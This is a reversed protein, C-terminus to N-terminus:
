SDGSVIRLVLLQAALVARLVPSFHYVAHDVHYAQSRYSSTRIEGAVHKAFFLAVLLCLWETSTCTDSRKTLIRRLRRVRHRM